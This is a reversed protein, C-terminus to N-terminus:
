IFSSYYFYYLILFQFCSAFTTHKIAINHTKSIQEDINVIKLTNTNSMDRLRRSKCLNLPMLLGRTQNLSFRRIKHEDSTLVYLTMNSRRPRSRFQHIIRRANIIDIPLLTISNNEEHSSHHDHLSKPASSSTEFSVTTNLKKSIRKQKITSVTETTEQFHDETNLTSQETSEAYGITTAHETSVQSTDFANDTTMSSKSLTTTDRMVESSM